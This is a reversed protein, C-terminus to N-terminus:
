VVSKRDAPRCAQRPQSPMPYNRGVVARGHRVPPPARRELLFAFRFALDSAALAVIRTNGSDAVLLTSRDASLALGHPYRLQGDAQGYRGAVALPTGDHAYKRVCCNYCDAVFMAADDIAIGRPGRLRLNPAGDNGILTSLVRGSEPAVVLLRHSGTDSVVLNGGPLM